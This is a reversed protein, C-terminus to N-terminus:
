MMMMLEVEFMVSARMSGWRAARGVRSRLGEAVLCTVCRGEVDMKVEEVASM